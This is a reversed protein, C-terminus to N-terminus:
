IRRQTQKCLVDRWQKLFPLLSAFRAPHPTLLEHFTNAIPYSCRPDIGLGSIVALTRQAQSTPTDFSWEQSHKWFNAAANVIQAIPLGTRHKPGSSLAEAKTPSSRCTVATAYAQCAVFGFGTIYEVEDFVGFTDPDPSAEVARDLRILHSDVLAVADQLFSLDYDPFVVRRAEQKGLTRASRAARPAAPTGFRRQSRKATASLGSLVTTRGRAFVPLPQASQSHQKRWCFPRSPMQQAWVTTSSLDAVRQGQRDPALEDNGIDIWLWAAYGLDELRSGPHAGDFDIFASPVGEVFVCNCPSADGHCLVEHESRLPCDQTADHLQRLLRAAAM